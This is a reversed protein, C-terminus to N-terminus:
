LMRLQSDLFSVFAIPDNQLSNENISIFTGVVTTAKPIDITSPILIPIM